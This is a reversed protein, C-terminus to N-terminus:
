FNYGVTIVPGGTQIKYDDESYLPLFSAKYGIGINFKKYGLNAGVQYGMQFRNFPDGDMDDSDYFSQSLSEKESKYKATAKDNFLLGLDFHIGAYPAIYLGNSMSVKYTFNVPVSLALFNIRESISVGSMSESDSKTAYNVQGGVEFFLPTNSSLSIGRTWGVTLGSMNNDDDTYSSGDETEKLKVGMYGVSFRSYSNCDKELSLSSGGRTGSSSNNTNVFQASATTAFAAFAAMAMFKFTKM